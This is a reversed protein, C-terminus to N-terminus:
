RSLPLRAVVLSALEIAPTRSDVQIVDRHAVATQKWESLQREIEAHSLEDKRERITAVPADLLVIVDPRPIVHSLLRAPTPSPMLYRRHDVVIDQWGREVVVVGGRHLVPRYLLWYGLIFDVAYYALRVMAKASGHPRRGHPDTVVGPAPKGVLRGPLPLLAPRFYAHRVSRGETLEDVLAGAFTSKGVGDPGVVHVLLGGRAM